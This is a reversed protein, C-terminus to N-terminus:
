KNACTVTCTDSNCSFRCSGSGGGSDNVNIGLLQIRTVMNQFNGSERGGGFIFTRGTADDPVFPIINGESDEFTAFDSRLESRQDIFWDGRSGDPFVFTAAFNTNVPLNLVAQVISGTQVVSLLLPYRQQMQRGLQSALADVGILGHASEALEVPVQFSGITPQAGTRETSAEHYVGLGDSVRSYGSGIPRLVNNVVNIVLSVQGAEEASPQLRVATATITGETLPAYVEIVEEAKVGNRLLAEDLDRPQQPSLTADEKFVYYKEIVKNPFDGVWVIGSGFSGPFALGRTEASQVRQASSCAECLAGLTAAQVTSVFGHGAMMIFVAAIRRKMWQKM